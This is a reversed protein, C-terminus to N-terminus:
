EQFDLPNDPSIIVAEVVLLQLSLESNLEKPVLFFYFKISATQFLIFNCIIMSFYYVNVNNILYTSVNDPM